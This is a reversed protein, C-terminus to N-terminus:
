VHFRFYPVFLGILLVSVSEYVPLVSKHNGLPLITPSPLIPFEPNASAFEHYILQIFLLTRCCLSGYEM